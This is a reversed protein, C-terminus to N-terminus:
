TTALTNHVPSNVDHRPWVRVATLVGVAGIAGLVTWTAAFGALTAGWGAIPYALLWCLHSLSFQAAFLAPRDATDAARRLVRGVPTLVLSMGAGLLAWVVAAAAWRYAATATTSELAGGIGFLLTVGGALMVSREPIRRLLPPLSLAALMTGAGAAALLWAVEAQGGGLDDRVYNVTSVMVISGACAVTLDLALVGRLRPTGVFTRIGSLARDWVNDHGGPVVDPIRTTLVLVASAIFGATTGLFLWHFNMVTLALAALVPSLLGEMTVALQSASLARTYQEEDTVVDPILAQFTPTFAASASQLTAVLLYIQWTQDVFPLALVVTARVLDLAVLMLRRPLRHAHAAAIPAITVYCIMKLTLTNGLVGGAAPGALQYALLGLAVTTLGTGFLAVVQAAFLHRYDRIGFLGTASM